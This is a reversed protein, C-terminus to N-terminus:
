QTVAKSRLLLINIPSGSVKSARETLLTIYHSCVNRESPARSPAIAQAIFMGSRRLVM